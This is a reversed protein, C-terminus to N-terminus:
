HLSVSISLFGDKVDAQIEGGMNQVLEKAIALGLGTNGDNRSFDSTYFRDFLNELAFTNINKMKNQFIITKNDANVSLHFEELGHKLVNQILNQFVRGLLDADCCAYIPTEPIDICMTFNKITFDDYYSSVNDRLINCININKMHMEIKGETIQTYEFLENMISSLSKLRHEIINLYEEKKADPIEDSRIMQIYGIASTLPTRLDHSINTIAQRFEKNSKETFITMEKQKDLVDNIIDCLRCIDNDFTATTLRMNTDTQKIKELM